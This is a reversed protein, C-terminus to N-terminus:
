KGHITVNWLYFTIFIVSFYYNVLQNLQIENIKVRQRIKINFIDNVCHEGNLKWQHNLVCQESKPQASLVKLCLVNM